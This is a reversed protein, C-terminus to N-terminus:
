STIKWGKVSKQKGSILVSVCSDRLQYKAIFEARTGEFIGHDPHTFSRPTHDYTANDKGVHKGIHAARMKARSQETPRLGIHSAAIKRRIHEPVPGRSIGKKAASMKARVEPGPIYGTSGEGGDTLNALFQRGVKAIVIKEITLACPEVMHSRIIQVYFDHKAVIHRWWPNKRDRSWARRNKGKGVYFISGDTARRHLYVYHVPASPDASRTM